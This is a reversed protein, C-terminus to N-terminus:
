LNGLRNFLAIAAEYMLLLALVAFVIAVARWIVERSSNRNKSNFLYGAFIFSIFSSIFFALFELKHM